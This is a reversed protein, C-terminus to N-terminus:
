HFRCSVIFHSMCYLVSFVATCFLAVLFFFICSLAPFLFLMKSSIWVLADLSIYDSICVYMPDCATFAM